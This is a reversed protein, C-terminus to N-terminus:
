LCFIYLLLVLYCSNRVHSVFDYSEEHILISQGYPSYITNGSQNVESDDRLTDHLLHNLVM